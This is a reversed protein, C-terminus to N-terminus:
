GFIDAIQEAQSLSGRLTAGTLLYRALWDRAKADGARAQEITKACIEQWTDLPCADSLARLYDAEVARRQKAPASGEGPIAAGRTGRAM